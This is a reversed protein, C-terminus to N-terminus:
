FQILNKDYNENLNEAFGVRGAEHTTNSENGRLILKLVFHELKWIRLM